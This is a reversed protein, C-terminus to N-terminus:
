LPVFITAPMFFSGAEDIEPFIIDAPLFTLSGVAFLTKPIGSGTGWSCGARAFPM